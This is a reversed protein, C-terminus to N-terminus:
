DKNNKTPTPYSSDNKKKRKINVHKDILQTLEHILRLQEERDREGKTKLLRRIIEEAEEEQTM